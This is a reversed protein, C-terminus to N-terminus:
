PRRLVDVGHALDLPPNLADFRPPAADSSGVSSRGAPMGSRNSSCTFSIYSSCHSANRASMVRTTVNM